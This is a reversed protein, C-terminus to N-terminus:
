IAWVGSPPKPHLGTQDAPRVTSYQVRGPTALQRWFLRRAFSDSVSESVGGRCERKYREIDTFRVTSVSKGSPKDWTQICLLCVFM